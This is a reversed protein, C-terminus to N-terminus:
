WDGSAGGGGFGGGGGGFGGSGGGFGGSWGGGGGPVIIGGPRYTHPGVRSLGGRGPALLLLLVFALLGAGAALALGMGAGSVLFGTGFGAALSGLFRGFVLTAIMGGVGVFVLLQIWDMGEAAAGTGRQAERWPQPLAEGDILKGIDKVALQLGEFYQGERFRPAIAEVIIRKAIADPIAGELGYGVEIRVKRDAKAVLLIVGDDVSKGQVKGRGIKWAEALRISYDEIAEPQTSPVMVVVVQAGKRQEIAALETDLQRVQEASLTQTLDTVRATLAPLKQQGWAPALALLLGLLLLGAVAARLVRLAQSPMAALNM